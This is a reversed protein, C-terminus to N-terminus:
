VIVIRQIGPPRHVVIRAPEEAWTTSHRVELTDGYRRFRLTMPGFLTPMPEFVTEEDPSIWARPCLRLLHLEGPVIADDIVAHRAAWVILPQVGVMGYMGHRHEGAIYTQPSIAGTILGYLGELFHERDGLEWSHFLNWSYCPEGSSQEHDLVVRDLATHHASDFNATNPGVRFFEVFSRMLPDDAPMLGAWVSMLAGGDFLELEPWASEPGYFKSPLVPWPTGDPATWTPADATRLAEVYAARFREGLEAFEVARPHGIRRLLQVASMLGRYTWAQISVSQQEVGTDNAKAPPMLGPVAPHEVYACSRAIFDCAQVIPETWREVFAQNRSLLAHRAVAELIAGHDSLWDFSQLSSPTAFFGANSIGDYATGPPQRVGQSARYLELHSAVLDHHGLLDLFMHSVMSTPTSWLVDYGFSGTLFTPLGTDPSKEAIIEALQVSRRFFSNVYKEPTRIVAATRPEWYSEAEALAGDYGLRVEDDVDGPLMPLLVDVSAGVRADLIIELDYVGPAVPSLRGPAVLRVNGDADVIRDGCQELPGDLPAASPTVQMTIWAEQQEPPDVVHTLFVKSLRLVLRFEDPPRVDNVQEVTFRTWAYIPELATEVDRGGAVHAFTSQRLVLGEQRRHETWLVPTATDERWGQIGVGFDTRHLYQPASPLPPIRGRDPMVVTVQFDRGRYPALYPKLAPSDSPPLAVAPQCVITGNYFVDFRFLHSPWGVPTWVQRQPAWWTLAQEADPEM